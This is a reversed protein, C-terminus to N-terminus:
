RSDPALVLSPKILAIGTIQVTMATKTPAFIQPSTSAAVGTLPKPGNASIIKNTQKPVTGRQIRNALPESAGRRGEPGNL